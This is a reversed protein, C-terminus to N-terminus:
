LSSNNLYDERYEKLTKDNAGDVSDPHANQFEDDIWGCVPCIQNQTGYPIVYSKCCACKKYTASSGAGIGTGGNGTGALGEQNEALHNQSKQIIASIREKYLYEEVSVQKTNAGSSSGRGGM